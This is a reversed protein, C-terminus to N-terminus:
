LTLNIIQPVSHTSLPDFRLFGVELNDLIPWYRSSKFVDLDEHSFRSIVTFENILKSFYGLGEGVPQPDSIGIRLFIFIAM